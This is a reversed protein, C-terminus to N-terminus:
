EFFSIVFEDLEKQDVNFRSLTNGDINLKIVKTEILWQSIANPNMKTNLKINLKEDDKNVKM